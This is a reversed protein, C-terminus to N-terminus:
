RFHIKGAPQEADGIDGQDDQNQQEADIVISGLIKVNEFIQSNWAGRRLDKRSVKIFKVLTPMNCECFHLFLM